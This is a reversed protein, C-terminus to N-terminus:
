RSHRIIEDKNLCSGFDAMDTKHSRVSIIVMRSWCCHFIPFKQCETILYFVDHQLIERFINGAAEQCVQSPYFHHHKSFVTHQHGEQPVVTTKRDTGVSATTFLLESMILTHSPSQLKDLDHQARARFHSTNFFLFKTIWLSIVAHLM